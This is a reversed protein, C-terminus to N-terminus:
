IVTHVPSINQGIRKAGRLIFEDVKMATKNVEYDDSAAENETDLLKTIIEYAKNVDHCSQIQGQEVKRRFANMRLKIDRRYDCIRNVKFPKRAIHELRAVSIEDDCLFAIRIQLQRALSSDRRDNSREMENLEDISLGDVGAMVTVFQHALFGRLPVLVVRDKPYLRLAAQLYILFHFDMGKLKSRLRRYFLEVVLQQQCVEKEDLEIGTITEKISDSIFTICEPRNGLLALHNRLQEPFKLYDVVEPVSVEIDNKIAALTKLPAEAKHETSAILRNLLNGATSHGLLDSCVQRGATAIGKVSFRGIQAILKVRQGSELTQQGRSSDVPQPSGTEASYLPLAKSNDTAEM